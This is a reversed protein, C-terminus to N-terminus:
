RKAIITQAIGIFYESERIIHNIVVKVMTNTKVQSNRLIDNLFLVFQKSQELAYSIVEMIYQIMTQNLQGQSRIVTEILQVAKHEAEKFALEWEQLEKVYQSELNPAMERIVVTHESEQRKWFEMEDLIRLFSQDGYYFQM